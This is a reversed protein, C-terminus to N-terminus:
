PLNYNRQWFIRAVFIHAYSPLYTNALYKWSNEYFVNSGANRQTRFKALLRFILIFLSYETQRDTSINSQGQINKGIKPLFFNSNKEGCKSELKLKTVNKLVLCNPQM